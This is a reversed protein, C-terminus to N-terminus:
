TRQGRRAVRPRQRISLPSIIMAADMQRPLSKFTSICCASESCGVAATPPRDPRLCLGRAPHTAVPRGGRYVHAAHGVAGRRRADPASSGMARGIGSGEIRACGRQHARRASARATGSRTLASSPQWPRDALPRESDIQRLHGVQGTHCDADQDLSKAPDPFRSVGQLQSSGRARDCRCYQTHGADRVRGRLGSAERSRTLTPHEPDRLRYSREQNSSTLVPEGGHSGGLEHIRSRM